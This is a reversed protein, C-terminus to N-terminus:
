AQIAIEITHSTEEASKTRQIKYTNLHNNNLSNFDDSNLKPNNLHKVFHVKICWCNIISSADHPVNVVQVVYAIKM